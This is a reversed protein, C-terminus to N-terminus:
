ARNWRGSEEMKGLPLGDGYRCWTGRQFCFYGDLDGDCIPSRHEACVGSAVWNHCARGGTCADPQTYGRGLAFGTAMFAFSASFWHLVSIGSMAVAAVAVKGLKGVFFMDVLGLLDLTLFAGWTPLTIRWLAWPISGSTM